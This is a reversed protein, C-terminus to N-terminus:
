EVAQGKDGQSLACHELAAQLGLMQDISDCTFCIFPELPLGTLCVVRLISPM